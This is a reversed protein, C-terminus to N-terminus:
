KQGFIISAWDPYFIPARFFLSEENAWEISTRVINTSIAPRLALPPFNKVCNRAYGATRRACLISPVQKEVNADSAIGESSSIDSHASEIRM